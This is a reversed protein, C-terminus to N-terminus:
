PNSVIQFTVTDSYTGAPAAAFAAVNVVVNSTNSTLGNLSTVNKLQQYNTTLALATGGNYSMTYTTKVSASTGNRLESNNASKANIKYGTLNNSSELVSAVLKNSEGGTINLSTNNTGNPTVTINNTATVVGQLLLTGTDAALAQTGALALFIALVKMLAGKHAGPILAQYSPLQLEPALRQAPYGQPYLTTNM